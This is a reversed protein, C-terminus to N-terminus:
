AGLMLASIAEAPLTAPFMTASMLAPSTAAPLFAPSESIPVFAPGVTAPLFMPVMGMVILLLVALSGISIALFSSSKVSVGNRYVQLLYLACIFWLVSVLVIRPAVFWSTYSLGATMVAGVFMGVTLFPFGVLISSRSVRKLTSLPPIRRSVRTVKHKKLLADQYVLLGASIAGLILAAFAILLVVIHFVLLVQSDSAYDAAWEPNISTLIRGVSMLLAAIIALFAGYAKSKTILEFIIYLLVAVWSALTVVNPGSLLTGHTLVSSFGISATQAIFGLVILILAYNGIKQQRLLFQYAYLCAGVCYLVLAAWFFSAAAVSM